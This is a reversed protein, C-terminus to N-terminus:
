RSFSHIAAKRRGFPRRCPRPTSGHLTHRPDDHRPSRIDPTTIDSPAYTQPPLPMPRSADVVSRLARPTRRQPPPVAGTTHFPIVAASWHYACVGLTWLDCATDYEATKALQEPAWFGKTGVKGKAPGTSLDHVLGFDCLRATGDADMLVNKDKLDRYVFGHAHLVELGLLTSGLYFQVATNSLGTKAKDEDLGAKKAEKKAKEKTQECPVFSAHHSPSGTTLRCM